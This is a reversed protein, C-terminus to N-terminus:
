SFETIRVFGNASSWIGDVEGLYTTDVSEYFGGPGVQATYSTISATVGLKLYLTATSENYATFGKRSSNAALLQVNSASSAVSTQTATSSTPPTTSVTGSVSQTAPFNGVSISGSVPQTSPFNGVNISSLPGYSLGM